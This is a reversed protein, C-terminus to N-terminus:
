NLVTAQFYIEVKNKVVCISFSMVNKKLKLESKFLMQLSTLTVTFRYQLNKMSPTHPCCKNGDVKFYVFPLGNKFCIKLCGELM